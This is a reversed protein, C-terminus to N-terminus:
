REQGNGTGLLAAVGRRPAAAESSPRPALQQPAAGIQPVAAPSRATILRGVEGRVEATVDPVSGSVVAEGVLITTGDQARKRLVDQLLAMFHRTDREVQEPSNGSRAEAMVFDNIMASLSVAVIRRSKVKLVERTIWAGWVSAGILAAGVVLGTWSHGAFGTRRPAPSASAQPEEIHGFLDQM